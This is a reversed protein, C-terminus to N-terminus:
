SNDGVSYFSEYNKNVSIIEFIFFSNLLEVLFPSPPSRNYLVFKKCKILLKPM